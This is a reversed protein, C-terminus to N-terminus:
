LHLIFFLVETIMVKVAAKAQRPRVKVKAMCLKNINLNSSCLTVVIPTNEGHLCKKVLFQNCVHSNSQLLKDLCMVFKGFHGSHPM